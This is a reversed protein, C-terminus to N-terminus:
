RAAAAVADAFARPAEVPVFHGVGDVPVVTVDSFFSGLRDSWARPFLPDHEAWLFTTPAAIREAPAPATEGLSRTVVDPAARYWGISAVFAGPAGYATALHDLRDDSPTFGPGSWHSWFHHLYARVRGVDGDVLDRALDSRHFSQYWFERFPEAALVRDGAGPGPPTLVLAHVLDPRDTALRQAVRSGIDYGGVVVRTLGLEGLLGAVGRVQGAVGYHGAPDLDHKDSGGFGRLDPVVVDHGSRALQEAVAAHDTRDGPWGHLLLVPPGGPDGARDYALRFGDIPESLPM